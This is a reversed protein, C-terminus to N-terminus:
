CQKGTPTELQVKWTKGNDDSDLHHRIIRQTSEPIPKGDPGKDVKRTGDANRPGGTTRICADMAITEGRAAEWNVPEIDGIVKHSVVYYGGADFFEKRFRAQHSIWDDTAYKQVEKPIGPETVKKPREETYARIVKDGQYFAYKAVEHTPPVLKGNEDRHGPELTHHPGADEPYTPAGDSQSEGPSPSGSESADSSPSEVSTSEGGTPASTQGGDSDEENCGALLGVVLASAALTRTLRTTNM